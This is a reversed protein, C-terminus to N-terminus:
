HASRHAQSYEESCSCTTEWVLYLVNIWDKLLYPARSISCQWLSINGGNCPSKNLKDRSQVPLPFSCYSDPPFVLSLFHSRILYSSLSQPLFLLFPLTFSLQFSLLLQFLAWSPSCSCSKFPPNRNDATDCLRSNGMFTQRARQWDFITNLSSRIIDKSLAWSVQM